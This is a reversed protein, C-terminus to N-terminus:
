NIIQKLERAFFMSSINAIRKLLCIQETSWNIPEGVAECCIVGVPEFDYHIIYDLLSYIQNVQFYSHNFSQTAEHARAQSAVVAEHKLIADFYAQHDNKFLQMGKSIVANEDIMLHCYISDYGTNFSWLSVRHAEPILRHLTLCIEKLKEDVSLRRKSITASLTCVSDM